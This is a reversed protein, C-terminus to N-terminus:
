RRRPSVLELSTEGVGYSCSRLRADDLRESSERSPEPSLATMKALLERRSRVGLKSAARCMFVGITSDSLGLDYVIAKNHAGLMARRVVERERATLLDFGQARPTRELTLM